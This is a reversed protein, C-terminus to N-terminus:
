RASKSMSAFAQDLLRALEAETEEKLESKWLGKGALTRELTRAAGNGSRGRKKAELAPWRTCEILTPGNGRRAHALAESAVRFVAVADECDVVFGPMGYRGALAALNEKERHSHCVFLIPLMEAAACHMTAAPARTLGGFFAVVSKAKGRKLARASALAENWPTNSRGPRGRDALRALLTRISNEAISRQRIFEPLPSGDAALVRDRPLLNIAVGAAVAERGLPRPLAALGESRIRRELMRCKLMATYLAVLKRNSILPFGTEGPPQVAAPAPRRKRPTM